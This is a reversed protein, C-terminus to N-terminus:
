RDKNGPLKFEWSGEPAKCIHCMCHFCWGSANYWTFVPPYLHNGSVLSALSGFHFPGDPDPAGSFCVTLYAPSGSCNFGM